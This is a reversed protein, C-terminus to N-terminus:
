PGPFCRSGPDSLSSSTDKAYIYTEVFDEGFVFKFFDAVPFRSPNPHTPSLVKKSISSHGYFFLSEDKEVL